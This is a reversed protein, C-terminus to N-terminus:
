GGKEIQQSVFRKLNSLNATKREILKQYYALEGTVSMAGAGGQLIYPAAVTATERVRGRQWRVLGIQLAARAVEM